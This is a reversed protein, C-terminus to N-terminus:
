AADREGKLAVHEVQLADLKAQVETPSAKADALDKQAIALEAKLAKVEKQAAEREQEKKEHAKEWHRALDETLRTARKSDELDRKVSALEAKASEAARTLSDKESILLKKSEEFTTVMEKNLKMAEKLKAELETCKNVLDADSAVPAAKAKKLQDLADELSKSIEANKEEATRTKAELARTKNILEANADHMKKYEAQLQTQKDILEGKEASTKKFDLEMKSFELLLSQYKAQADSDEGSVGDGKAAAETASSKSVVASEVSRMRAELNQLASFVDAQSGLSVTGEPTQTYKLTSLQAEMLRKMREEKTGRNMEATIAETVTDHTIM